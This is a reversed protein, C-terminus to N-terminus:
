DNRTCGDRCAIVGIPSESMESRSPYAAAASTNTANERRDMLANRDAAMALLKINM